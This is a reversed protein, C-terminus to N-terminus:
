RNYKMYNLFSFYDVTYTIVLLQFFGSALSLLILSNGQFILYFLQNGSVVVPLDYTFKPCLKLFPLKLYIPM